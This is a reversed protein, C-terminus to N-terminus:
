PNINAGERSCAQLCGPIIVMSIPVLLVRTEGVTVLLLHVAIFPIAVFFFLRLMLVSWYRITFMVIIPLIQLTSFVRLLMARDTLNYVLVDYGQPRVGVFDPYGFAIRLGVFISVYIVGSIGGIIANRKNCGHIIMPLLIIFLCTERNFAALVTLPIIWVSRQKIVLILAVMYFIADLWTNFSLDSNWYMNSCSWGLLSLGLLMKTHSLGILYCVHAFLLLLVSSLMVRFTVFATFKRVSLLEFVYNSGEVLYASLLRYRWPNIATHDLVNQHRMDQTGGAEIYDSGLYIVHNYTIFLGLLVSVVVISFLKM